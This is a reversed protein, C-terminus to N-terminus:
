GEKTWNECRYMVKLFVLAKVTPVKALLIIHRGKARSLLSMLFLIERMACKNKKQLCDTIINDISVNTESKGGLILILGCSLPNRPKSVLPDEGGSLLLCVVTM